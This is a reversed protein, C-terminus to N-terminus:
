VSVGVKVINKYLEELDSVIEEWDHEAEVLTRAGAVICNRLEPSQLLKVVACVFDNPTDGFLINKGNTVNMGACAVSTSVVPINMAMAEIVKNLTGAGFRVPCIAVKAKAYYDRMDPVTGTVVISDSALKQISPSPSKGVIYLKVDPIQQRILPLIQQCFYLVGDQNPAFHMSGTFIIGNPESCRNPFPKFYDLDLGNRFIQINASPAIALLKDRDTESCVSIAQYSSIKSEYKLMRKWELFIGLKVFPNKTKSYRTELYKSIADTLDLIRPIKLKETYPIMRILHTHLLDYDNQSLLKELRLRYLPSQYYAVQFPLTSPFNKAMNLYSTSKPLFVTEIKRCFPQLNDALKIEEESEVFSLLDIEHHKSLLRLFHYMKLRDGQYPPYPLRPTLFLIKM